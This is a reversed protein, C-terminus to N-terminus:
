RTEQTKRKGAHKTNKWKRDRVRLQEPVKKHHEERMKEHEGNQKLKLNFQMHELLLIKLKKVKSPYVMESYLPGDFM